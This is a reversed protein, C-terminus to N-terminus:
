EDLFQLWRPSEGGPSVATIKTIYRAPDHPLMKGTYLDVIGGPTNLLWPDSDWIDVTAAHRRDARALREIAAVTKGSAIKERSEKACECVRSRCRTGLRVRTADERIEMKHRGM